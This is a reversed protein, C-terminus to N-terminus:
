GLAVRPPLLLPPANPEVLYRRAADELLEDLGLLSGAPPTFRVSHGCLVELDSV